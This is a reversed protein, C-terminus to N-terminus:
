REEDNSEEDTPIFDSDDSNDGNDSESQSENEELYDNGDEGRVDENENVNHISNEEQAAPEDNIRLDYAKGYKYKVKTFDRHCSSHYITSVDPINPLVLQAYKNGFLQFAQVIKLNHRVNEYQKGRIYQHM